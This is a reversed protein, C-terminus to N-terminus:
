GEASLGRCGAGSLVLGADRVPPGGPFYDHHSAGVVAIIDSGVSDVSVSCGFRDLYRGEGLGSSPPELTIGPVQSTQEFLSARGVDPTGNQLDEGRAGILILGGKTSVARGRKGGPYSDSGFTLEPLCSSPDQTCPDGICESGIGFFQGGSFQCVDPTELTCVVEICCAGTLACPSPDEECSTGEGMFTGGLLYCESVPKTVNECTEENFCCAGDLEFDCSIFQCNRGYLYVGGLDECESVGQVDLCEEGLCCAGSSAQCDFLPDDCSTNLGAYHGGALECQDIAFVDVCSGPLYFPLTLCCAGPSGAPECIVNECTTGLGLFTGGNSDCDFFNDVVECLTGTCCAGSQTACIDPLCATGPGLYGDATILCDRVGVSEGIQACTENFCCVGDTDDCLGVSCPVDLGLYTGGADSCIAVYYVDFCETGLCCAGPSTVLTCTAIDCINGFGLFTGFLDSCESLSAVQICESGVCCSMTSDCPDDSCQTGIGMFTATPSLFTCEEVGGVEYCGIGLCCAGSSGPVCSILSCNSNLGVFVGGKDECDLVSAVTTCELGDCCAGPSFFECSIQECSTGYGVYIGGIDECEVVSAVNTCNSNFCCAGPSGPLDCIVDEDECTTGPGMYTGGLPLCLGAAEVDICQGNLCCAGPESVNCPVIHDDREELAVARSRALQEPSFHDTCRQTTYSMLNKIPPDYSDGSGCADNDTCTLECQGDVATQGNNCYRGFDAATDCILDGADECNSGDVCEVGSFTEFTHFLNFYHGVEHSFTARDSATATCDNAMMIGQHQSFTFSSEGCLGALVPIFWVNMTGEVPDYQRLEDRESGSSLEAYEDSDIYIFNGERFFSLGAPAMHLNLDGIAMDVRAEPIGGSGDSYRVIHCSIGICVTPLDRGGPLPQSWNGEALQRKAYEAGEPTLVTGCGWDGPDPQAWLPTASLCMLALLMLLVHKM